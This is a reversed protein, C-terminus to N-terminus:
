EKTAKRVLVRRLVVGAEDQEGLVDDAGAIAAEWAAAPTPTKLFGTVGVQGTQLLGQRYDPQGADAPEALESKPRGGTTHVGGDADDDGSPEPGSEPDPSGILRESKGGDVERVAEGPLGPLLGDLYWRDLHRTALRPFDEQWRVLGVRNRTGLIDDSFESLHFTASFASTQVDGIPPVSKGVIEPPRRGTKFAHYRADFTFGGAAPDAGELKGSDLVEARYVAGRTAPPIPVVEVWMKDTTRAVGRLDRIQKGFLTVTEGEFSDPVSSSLRVVPDTREARDKQLWRYWDTLAPDFRLCHGTRITELFGGADAYLPQSPTLEHVLSAEINMGGLGRTTWNHSGVWLCASAPEEQRDFLLMKTHLLNVPM